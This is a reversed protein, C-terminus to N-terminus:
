EDAYVGRYLLKHGLSNTVGQLYMNIVESISKNALEVGESASIVNYSISVGDNSQSTVGASTTGDASTDSVMMSQELLRIYKILAYVCRKVAEPYEEENQLRNFTYWDVKARARFEYDQFTTEDLTGGMNTYEEYTLYM